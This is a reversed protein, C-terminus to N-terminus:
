KMDAAAELIKKAHIGRYKENLLLNFSNEINYKANSLPQNIALYRRLWPWESALCGYNVLLPVSFKELMQGAFNKIRVHDIGNGFLTLYFPAWNDNFRFNNLPIDNDRFGDLLERCFRRRKENTEELRRLSSLAIAALFENSNHNLAPFLNLAPNNLNLENRWIPKGRDSYALVNELYDHDNVLVVGGSGGSSLNKRYMISFASLQGFTGAIGTNVRAKIAQSCDEILYVGERRCWEAIQAIDSIPEGGIHCAVLCKPPELGQSRIQEFTEVVTEMNINFTESGTDVLAPKFGAEIIASICGGDTIGSVLVISNAPISIAKLAIYIASTGTAVLRSQSVGFQIAFEGEFMEQYKGAYPPDLRRMRYDTACRILAFYEHWGFAERKPYSFRSRSIPNM